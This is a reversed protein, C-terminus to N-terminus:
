QYAPINIQQDFNAKPVTAVRPKIFKLQFNYIRGQKLIVSLDWIKMDVIRFTVVVADCIYGCFCFSNSLVYKHERTILNLLLM